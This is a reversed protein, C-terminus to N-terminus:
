PYTISIYSGLVLVYGYCIGYCIGRGCCVMVYWVTVYPQWLMCQCFFLGDVEGHVVRDDPIAMTVSATSGM